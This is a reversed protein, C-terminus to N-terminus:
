NFIQPINEKRLLEGLLCNPPQGDRELQQQFIAPLQHGGYWHVGISEPPLERVSDSFIDPIHFSDYPYVIEMPINVVTAPASIPPGQNRILISGLSQYNKPDFHDIAIKSLHRYFKNDGGSLLFGISYFDRKKKYGARVGRKGGISHSKIPHVVYCVYTDSEPQKLFASIPKVYLIDM